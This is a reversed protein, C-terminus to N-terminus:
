FFELQPKHPKVTNPKRVERWFEDPTYGTLALLRYVPIEPILRQRTYPRGQKDTMKIQQGKPTNFQELFETKTMKRAYGVLARSRSGLQHKLQMRRNLAQFWPSTSKHRLPIRRGEMPCLLPDGIELRHVAVFKACTRYRGACSVADSVTGFLDLHEFEWRAPPHVILESLSFRGTEPLEMGVSNLCRFASRLFDVRNKCLSFLYAKLVDRVVVPQNGDCYTKVARTLCQTIRNQVVRAAADIDTAEQPTVPPPVAPSCDADAV